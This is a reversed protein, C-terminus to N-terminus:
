KGSRKSQELKEKTNMLQRLKKLRRREHRNIYRPEQNSPESFGESTPVGSAVVTQALPKFESTADLNDVKSEGTWGSGQYETGDKPSDKKNTQM